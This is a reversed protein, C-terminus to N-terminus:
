IASRAVMVGYRRGARQWVIWGVVSLGLAVAVAVGRPGQGLHPSAFPITVLVMVLVIIRVAEPVRQAAFQSVAPERHTLDRTALKWRATM